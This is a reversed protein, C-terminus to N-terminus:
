LIFKHGSVTFPGIDLVALFGDVGLAALYEGTDVAFQRHRRALAAAVGRRIPAFPLGAEECRRIAEALPLRAFMARLDPLLREQAAVRRNNTTLEPDALLDDREFARCFRPWQKDSTVGVFLLEGDAAAVVKGYWHVAGTWDRRTRATTGHLEAVFREARRSRLETGIGGPM